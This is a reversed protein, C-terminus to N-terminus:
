IQFAFTYKDDTFQLCSNWYPNPGQIVFKLNVDDAIESTSTANGSEKMALTHAGCFPAIKLVDIQWIAMTLLSPKDDQLKLVFVASIYCINM